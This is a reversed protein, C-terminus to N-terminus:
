FDHLEVDFILVANAPIGAPPFQGYGLHSPILFTGAGGKSLLPIGETWGSIVQQLGFTISQGRDYSSDFTEGNTFYGKYDVTVQDIKAPHSGDGERTIIYHLGSETSEAKLNNELLYKAIEEQNQQMTAKLIDNDNKNCAALIFIIGIGKLLKIM